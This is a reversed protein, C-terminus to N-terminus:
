CWIPNNLGQYIAGLMLYGAFFEPDQQIATEYSSIMLKKNGNAAYNSGKLVYADRYKPDIRLAENIYKFSKEFDQLQSFTSALSVLVAPNDPQMQLLYKFNRQAVLIDEVTRDARNNLVNAYLFRVEFRSSDLRFARAADEMAKDYEYNDFRQQGREVLLPISDPHAAIQEDITMEEKSAEKPLEENCSSLIAVFLVVVLIKFVKLKNM